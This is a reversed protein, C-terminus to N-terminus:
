LLPSFLKMVSELFKHWWPRKRWEEPLIEKCEEMDKIFIGKNLLALERDYIYTNIEYSLELSRFDLNASGIVSIFDDSVMTKAHIFRHQNEYIRIGAKLSEEYYSNSAFDMFRFDSRRSLMIRVDVGKLAATQLAQLVPETPMYYPTQIYLYKNTNSVLDTTAYLLYPWQADPSEPVIQILNDSYKRTAPFYDRYHSVPKGGSTIWFFLFNAQLAYVGEGLIRIHTDRWERAYENGVNMGGTYGIKGDIVVIKRHNRYNLKRRSWPLTIKTFPIVQVGSKRMEYYFRPLTGINALNEYIFRVRVGESAKRMLIEKVKIGTEDKNFNFYEMHIHHKANELDEILAQFKREGSTIIEIDSGYYLRSNYSQELLNALSVAEEPLLSKHDEIKIGEDILDHYLDAAFDEFRINVKRKKRTNEGFIYYFILGIAPIFILVLVWALTKHPNRNETVVVLITGIITILYAFYIIIRLVSIFDM